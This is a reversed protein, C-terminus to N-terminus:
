FIIGMDLLSFHIKIKLVISDGNQKSETVLHNRSVIGLHYNATQLQSSLIHMHIQSMQKILATVQILITKLILMPTLGSRFSVKGFVM